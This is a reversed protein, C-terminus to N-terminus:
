SIALGKTGPTKASREILEERARAVRSRITGVACDCVEAAEAYTLGIIQTLVIAIRQDLQLSSVLEDLEVATEPSLRPTPLPLADALELWRRRRSAVRVANRRAIVFLWTRATSEGRFTDLSRWAALFTEQTADSADDRGILHACLRWISSHMAEVVAAFAGNDGDRARILLDTLEDVSPSRVGRQRSPVQRIM